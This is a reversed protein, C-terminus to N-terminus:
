FGGAAWGLGLALLTLGVGAAVSKWVVETAQRRVQWVAGRDLARTRGAAIEADREGLAALFM